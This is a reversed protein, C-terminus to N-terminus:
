FCKNFLIRSGETIGNESFWGANMELAYMAKKKSPYTISTDLPKMNQIDVIRGSRDIYAISLPLYTNKMWFSLNEENSFVFLMGSNKSLERRFMLGQQKENETVALEVSINKKIGSNNIISIICEGQANVAGSQSIVTFFIFLKFIFKM